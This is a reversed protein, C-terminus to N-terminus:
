KQVVLNDFLLDSVPPGKHAEEKHEDDDSKEDKKAKSDKKSKDDKAKTDKKAKDGKSKEPKAHEDKAPKHDGGPNSVKELAENIKALAEVRMKEKGEGSAMQEDTVSSILMILTDRILPMHHSVEQASHADETRLSLEAKIYKVRGPGGYNVVLPPKIAIYNVGEKFTEGGGSASALSPLLISGLLAAIAGCKRVLKM